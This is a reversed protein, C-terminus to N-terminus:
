RVHLKYLSDAILVHKEPRRSGSLHSGNPIGFCWFVIVVRHHMCDCFLAPRLVYDTLDTVYDWFVNGLLTFDCSRGPWPIPGARGLWCIELLNLLEKMGLFWGVHSKWRRIGCLCFGCASIFWRVTVTLISKCGPMCIHTVDTATWVKMLRLFSKGSNNLMWTDYSCLDNKHNALTLFFIGTVNRYLSVTVWGAFINKAAPPTKWGRCASCCQPQLIRFVPFV